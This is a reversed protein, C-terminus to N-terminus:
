HHCMDVEKLRKKCSCRDTPHNFTRAPADSNCLSQIKVAGDEETRVYDDGALKSSSGAAKICDLTQLIARQESLKALEIDMKKAHGFLRQKNGECSNVA